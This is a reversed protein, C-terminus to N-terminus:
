LRAQGRCLDDWLERTLVVYSDNQRVWLSAATRNPEGPKNPESPEGPANPEAPANPEGPEGPTLERSVLQTLDLARKKVKFSSTLELSPVARAFCPRAHVPLALAARAMAQADLPGHGVVEAFGARGPYGPVAVGFVAVGPFGLGSDLVREVELASVNEGKWRFADGLRDVFYYYGLRDRRLVDGSRFYADGPEFVDRVIRETSADRDSYGRFAGHPEAASPFVRFLLEGPEDAACETGRGHADRWLERREADLRALRFGRRREFPVHGLSGVTGTLNLIAAPAETSAYFERILPQGFRRQFESWVHAELGNGVAVRLRLGREAESAASHVLARCVDGIYLTATAGYRRLDSAFERASFKRRLAIPVGAVLAAGVGILLASSHHLPLACYLKDGARFEFAVSGFITAASRAREHSVRCAKPLGTTGSTFIWVFDGGPDARPESLEAAQEARADLEAFEGSGFGLVRGTVTLAERESESWASSVASEVLSLRPAVARLAHALPEARLEPNILAAAAGAYSVALLLELYGPSNGGILAVVEGPQVGADVLVRALRRVRSRAEAFTSRQEDQECFLADPTRAAHADLWAIFPATGSARALRVAPLVRRLLVPIRSLESRRQM